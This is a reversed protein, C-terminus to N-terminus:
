HGTATSVYVAVAEIQRENLTDRFSPMVGTGSRVVAVV